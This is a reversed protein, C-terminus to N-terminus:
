PRHIPIDGGFLRIHYLVEMKPDQFEWQYFRGTNSGLEVASPSNQLEAGLM